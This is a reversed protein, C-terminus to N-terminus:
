SQGVLDITVIEMPNAIRFPIVHEGLGATVIVHRDANEFHGYGYRPLPWGYPSLLCRNNPLRMVGGHFHGSVTLDAGWRLYSPTFQPNHALLISCADEDRCSGIREEIQSLSLKPFRFKKYFERPLELGYLCLRNGNVEVSAHQQHLWHVGAAASEETFRGYIEPFAQLCTEHNGNVAYFPAIEALTRMVHLVPEVPSRSNGTILDGSSLILDPKQERCCHLLTRNQPGHENGHLDGLLLIRLPNTIKRNKVTYRTVVFDEGMFIWFREHLARATEQENM